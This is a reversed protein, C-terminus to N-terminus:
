KRCELIRHFSGPNRDEVVDATEHDALGRVSLRGVFPYDPNKGAVEISQPKQWRHHVLGKGSDGISGASEYRDAMKLNTTAGCANARLFLNFRPARPSRPALGGTKWSNRRVVAGRGGRKLSRSQHRRSRVSCMALNMAMM